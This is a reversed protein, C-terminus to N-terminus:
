RRNLVSLLGRLGTVLLLVAAAFCGLALLGLLLMLAWQGGTYTTPPSVAFGFALPNIIMMIGILFCGGLVILALGALMIAAGAWVRPAERGVPQAYPIPESM